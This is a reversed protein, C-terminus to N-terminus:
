TGHQLEGFDIEGVNGSDIGERWLRKM